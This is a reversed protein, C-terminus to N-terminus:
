LYLKLLMDQYGSDVMKELNPPSHSVAFNGETLQVYLVGDGHLGSRRQGAGLPGLFRGPIRSARLRQCTRKLIRIEEM